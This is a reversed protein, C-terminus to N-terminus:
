RLHFFNLELYTKLISYSDVGSIIAPRYCSCVASSASVSFALIQISALSFFVYFFLNQALVLINMLCLSFKFLKPYTLSKNMYSNAADTHFVQIKKENVCAFHM